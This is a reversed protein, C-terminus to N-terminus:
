GNQQAARLYEAVLNRTQKPNMKTVDVVQSPVGGRSGMVRPARPRNQQTLIGNVFKQYEQVAQEGSAGHEMLSLVYREDYDGYKQRLGNLEQDLRSDEAAEQKTQNERLLIQAMTNFGEELRQYRPDLPAESDNGNYGSGTQGQEQQAELYGHAQGLAQWVEQPSDNIAQYIQYAQQLQDADVGNDIFSRYPAYQSHVQQFRQQVGQDWKTLHPTINGHLSEPIAKLVPDWAPNMRAQQPQTQQAPFSNGGSMDPLGSGISGGSEGGSVGETAIGEEM